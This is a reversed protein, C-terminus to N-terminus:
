VGTRPRKQPANLTPNTDKGSRALKTATRTALAITLDRDLGPLEELQQKARRHHHNCIRLTDAALGPLCGPCDPTDCTTTHRHPIRCDPVACVTLTM